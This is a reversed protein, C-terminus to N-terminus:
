EEDAYIQSFDLKKWISLGSDWAYVGTTNLKIGYNENTMAVENDDIVFVNNNSKVVMGNKGFESYNVGDFGRSVEYFSQLLAVKALENVYKGDDYASYESGSYTICKPNFKIQARYIGRKTATYTYECIQGLGPQTVITAGPLKGSYNNWQLSEVTTLVKEQTWVNDVLREITIILSPVPSTLSVDKNMVGWYKSEANGISFGSGAECVDAVNTIPGTVGTSKLLLLINKFSITGGNNVLGINFYKDGITTDPKIVSNTSTSDWTSVVRSNTNWTIAKRVHFDSQSLSDNILDNTSINGITDNSLLVCPSGENSDVGYVSIKNGAVTIKDNSANEKTDLSNVKMNAKIELNGSEDWTIKEGALSGQGTKFNFWMMPRKDGTPKGENEDFTFNHFNGTNGTTDAQSFVWDKYFVAPGINAQEFLGVNAYIVEMNPIVKWTYNTTNQNKNWDNYPSTTTNASNNDRALYYYGGAKEDDSISYVYPTSSEDAAYTKGSEWNGASYMLRGRAGAPGDKVVPISISDIRTGQYFFEFLIDNAGLNVYNQLTNQALVYPLQDPKNIITANGQETMKMYLAGSLTVNNNLSAGNIQIVNISIPSDNKINGTNSVRITSDSCTLKYLVANDGKAGDKGNTGNSIKNILFSTEFTKEVPDGNSTKVMAKGQLKFIVKSETSVPLSSVRLTGISGEKSVTYHTNLQVLADSVESVKFETLDLTDSGHYIVFHTECPFGATASGDADLLVSDMPNDIHPALTSEGPISIGDQSFKSWLKPDSFRGWEGNTKKRVSIFEYMNNIDVGHPNDSWGNPLHEIIEEDVKNKIEEYNKPTPNGPADSSNSLYYVYEVGDGDKGNAGYKSWLTPGQWAGWEYMTGTRMMVWEYPFEESVGQPNDYWGNADVGGEPRTEEPRKEPAVDTKTLMYVYEIGPGDEGDKGDKGSIMIPNSWGGEDPANNKTKDIFTKSTMWIPASLSEDNLTWGFPPTFEGTTFNYAGDTPPKPADFKNGKNSTSTFVFKTISQWAPDGADGKAGQIAGHNVWVKNIDDWIYIDYPKETGVGYAEGPLPKTITAILEELTPFIGMIQFDSGKDGTEGKEGKEGKIKSVKWNSWVGNKCTTTAMWISTIDGDDTWDKNKEIWETNYNGDEDKSFGDTPEKPVDESSYIVEFDATDTMQVPTTWEDHNGDSSFVCTSSWIIENSNSPIGDSWLGGDPIPNIFNGGKPTDKDTLINNTRRFVISKFKGIGDAGDKGDAGNFESSDIVAIGDANVISRNDIQVGKVPIVVESNGGGLQAEAIKSTVWSVTTYESDNDLQSVKTPVTPIEAKTALHSIDQHEKLFGQENVWQETAFGDLNVEGDGGSLQAKTIEASVWSETAYKSDNDLESVKTPLESKKAYESLDITADGTQVKAIESDVYTKTTYNQGKVWQETAYGSLDVTGNDGEITGLDVIGNSPNKTVGNIKVATVTGQNKTFGMAAIEAESTKEVTGNGSTISINGSGLISQNNITKININSVLKDQKSSEMSRIKEDNLRIQEDMTNLEAATLVQEPKFNQKTYAM